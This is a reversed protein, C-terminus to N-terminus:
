VTGPILRLIEKISMLDNDAELARGNKLISTATKYMAPYASRLLQNAYIVVNFGNDALEKESIHNYSTPVCILPVLPFVERFLKSFNFVENPLKDRSHIM